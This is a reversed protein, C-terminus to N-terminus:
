EIPIQFLEPDNKKDEVDNIPEAIQDTLDTPEDFSKKPSAVTMTVVTNGHKKKCVCFLVIGTILVVVIGIVIFVTM